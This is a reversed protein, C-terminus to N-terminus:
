ASCFAIKRLRGATLSSGKIEKDADRLKLPRGKVIELIEKIKM